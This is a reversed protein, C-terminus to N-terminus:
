KLDLLKTNDMLAISAYKKDIVFRIVTRQNHVSEAGSDGLHPPLELPLPMLLLHPIVVIRTALNGYDIVFGIGEIGELPPPFLLFCSRLESCKPRPLM